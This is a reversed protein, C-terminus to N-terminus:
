NEFILSKIVVPYIPTEIISEGIDIYDGEHLTIEDISLVSKVDTERILVNGVSNGVDTSFVLILAHDGKITKPLAEAVGMSFTKLKDYQIGVPDHFALALAGNGETIDSRALAKNIEDSVHSVSLDGRKVNPTVVPLNRIPLKVKNSRYTTSGSVQLTFESAGIVTARIKESPEVVNLKNEEILTRLKDGLRKGLDQFDRSEKGYIYEAVGGSFSYIHESRFVSSPIDDTTWLRTSLRSKPRGTITDLLSKALTETVKEKLEDSIEEDIERIYGLEELIVRGSDELRTIMDHEDFAILRGGINMCGTRTIEGNEIVAINSTGGGIDTHILKVHKKRSYAVAGSGYASIVSEYNPGATAAVFKGGEEALSNVIYEANEKRASEGTVIVAGTDIDGTVLGAKKYEKKLLPVLKEVDIEKGGDKLPTLFIQGRYGIKRETVTFKKSRSFPNRELVLESFVLHSTTTGIDIGVSTITKREVKM